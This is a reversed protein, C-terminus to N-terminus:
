LSLPKTNAIGTGAFHAVVQDHLAAFTPSTIKIAPYKGRLRDADGPHPKSRHVRWRQKAATGESFGEERLTDIRLEGQHTVAVHM